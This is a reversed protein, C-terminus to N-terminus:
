QINLYSLLIGLAGKRPKEEIDRSQITASINKLLAAVKSSLTVTSNTAPQPGAGSAAMRGKLM